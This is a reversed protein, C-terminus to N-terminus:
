VPKPYLRAHRHQNRCFLSLGVGTFGGPQYAPGPGASQIPKGLLRRSGPIHLHATFTRVIGSGAMRRHVPRSALYGHGLRPQPPYAMRPVAAATAEPEAVAGKYFVLDGRRLQKAAHVATFWFREWALTFEAQTPPQRAPPLGPEPLPPIRHDKDLLVRVGRHVTDPIQGSAAMKSFGDLIAAENLVFDVQLGGAYLVLHEPEGAVTRSHIKVWVPAFSEFWATSHLYTEVDNAFLIIDLDSWPDAPHDTRAQSGVVIAARLPEEDRAWATFRAEIDHLTTM